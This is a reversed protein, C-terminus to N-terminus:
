EHPIGLVDLFEKNDSDAFANNLVDFKCPGDESIRYLTYGGCVQLLECVKQLDWGAAISATRNYEFILKPKYRRLLEQAGALVDYEHGEVDIKILSPALIEGNGLLEDLKQMEVEVLTGQGGTVHNHLSAWGAVAPDCRMMVKGSSRGLAINKANVQHFSNCECTVLLHHFTGPVPEFSYVHGNGGVQTAMVATFYGINAGIDMVVDGEHILSVLTDEIAQDLRGTSFCVKGVTWPVFLEKPDIALLNGNSM